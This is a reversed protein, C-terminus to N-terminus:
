RPSLLFHGNYFPQFLLSHISQRGFFFPLQLSNAMVPPKVTNYDITKYSLIIYICKKNKLHRSVKLLLIKHEWSM